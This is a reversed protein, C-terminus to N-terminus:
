RDGLCDKGCFYIKYKIYYIYRDYFIFKKNFIHFISFNSIISNKNLIYNNYFIYCSLKWILRNNKFLLLKYRFNFYRLTAALVYNETCSM